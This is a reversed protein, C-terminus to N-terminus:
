MVYPGGTTDDGGRPEGGETSDAAQRAREDEIARLIEDEEPIRVNHIAGLLLLGQGVLAPDEDLWDRLPEILEEMGFLSVWEATTGPGVADMFWDFHRMLTEFAGQTGLDCLL